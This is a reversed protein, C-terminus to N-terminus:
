GHRVGKSRRLAQWSARLWHSWPLLATVTEFPLQSTAAEAQAKSAGHNQLHREFERLQLAERLTLQRRPAPRRSRSSPNRSPM